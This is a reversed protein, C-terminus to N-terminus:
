IKLMVSGAAFDHIARREKNSHITLFSIWGLGIKIIYRLLAQLINIKKSNAGHQRVRIKKVYNGLTCAFATCVPEYVAWLGVFLVIRIWDPPDQYRDLVSAFVFMLIIIFIGDIFSSQIRDGLLPYETQTPNEAITGTEMYSDKELM